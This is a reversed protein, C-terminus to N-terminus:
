SRLQQAAAHTTNTPLTAREEYKLPCDHTTGHRKQMERAEVLCVADGGGQDFAIIHYMGIPLLATLSRSQWDVYWM